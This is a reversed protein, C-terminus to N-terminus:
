GLKEAVTIMRSTDLTFEQKEYGGYVNRIALGADNLLQEIRVFSYLRVNHEVSEVKGTNKRVLAWQSTLKSGRLDLSRRELMYFPEFEAWDRERFTRVIHDRSALDLLFKGRRKLTRNIELLSLTDESESPLYGFSTFMSIVACFVGNRFPLFRMDARVLPLKVGAQKVRTSAIALLNRSVDVGVVNLARKSLAISHRATGCCLDLVIGKTALANKIFDAENETDRTNTIAEWDAGMDDFINVYPQNKSTQKKVM